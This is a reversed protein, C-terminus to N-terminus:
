EATLPAAVQYALWEDSIPGSRAHARHHSDFFYSRPLEGRWRPDIRYRLREVFEDAFIWTEDAVVGTRALASAAEAELALGDTSVIM